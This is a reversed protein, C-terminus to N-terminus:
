AIVVDRLHAPLSHQISGSKEADLILLLIKETVRVM